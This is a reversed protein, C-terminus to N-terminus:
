FEGVFCRRCSVKVVSFDGTTDSIYMALGFAAIPRYSMEYDFTNMANQDKIVPYNSPSEWFFGIYRQDPRKGMSQATGMERLVDWVVVDAERALHQGKNFGLYRCRGDCLVETPPISNKELHIFPWCAFQRYM